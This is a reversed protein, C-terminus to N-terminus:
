SGHGLGHGRGAGRSSHPYSGSCPGEQRCGDGLFSWGANQRLTQLTTRVGPIQPVGGGQHCHPVGGAASGVGRTGPGVDLPVRTTGQERCGGQPRGWEELSEWWWSQGTKHRGVAWIELDVRTQDGRAWACNCGRGLLKASISVKPRAKKDTVGHGVTSM